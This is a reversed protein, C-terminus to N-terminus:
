RRVDLLRRRNVELVRGVFIRADESMRDGPVREIIGDWQDGDLGDLRSLWLRRAQAGARHLAEHAVQVLAPRGAFHKSRGRGCWRELSVPDRLLDVMQTPPVNFGLSSGHDFSPALRRAGSRRDVLVGWNEHRRDTNAIWADLLLYGSWVQFGDLDQLGAHGAPADAGALCARVADVTYLPHERKLEPDYGAASDALLENGHVLEKVTPDNMRRCIVGFEGGRRALDVEAAPVGLRGALEAALKEAWDDGYVKGVGDHWVYKFLHLGGDPGDLWVKAKSGM